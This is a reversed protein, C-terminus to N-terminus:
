ALALEGTLVVVSLWDKVEVPVLVTGECGPSLIMASLCFGGMETSIICRTRGVWTQSYIWLAPWGCRM